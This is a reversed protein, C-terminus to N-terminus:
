PAYVTVLQLSLQMNQRHASLERKIMVIQHSSLELKVATGPLGLFSRGGRRVSGLVRDLRTLTDECDGLSRRVNRWHQGEYGTQSNSIGSTLSRDGFREKVSELVQALSDIEVGLLRLNADVNKVKNVFITIHGATELCLKALTGSLVVISLPDM